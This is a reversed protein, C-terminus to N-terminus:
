KIMKDFKEDFRGRRYGLAYGLWAGLAYAAFIGGCVVWWVAPSM